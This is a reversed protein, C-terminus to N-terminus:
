RGEKSKLGLMEEDQKLCARYFERFEVYDKVPIRRATIQVDRRVHLLGPSQSIEYSYSGFKDNKVSFPKPIFEVTVADPVKITVDVTLRKPADIELDITRTQLSIADSQGLRDADFLPNFTYWSGMRKTFDRIAYTTESKLVGQSNVPDERTSLIDVERYEKSLIQKLMQILEEKPVRPILHFWENSSITDSKNTIVAAQIDELRIEINEKVWNKDPGQPPILIPEGKKDGLIIAHRFQDYRPLLGYPTSSSTPDLFSYRGDPNRLAVIAHDFSLPYPVDKDLLCATKVLAVASDIGISRLLAVTLVSKDKCDGYGNKMTEAASRPIFTGENLLIAVYRFAKVYDYIAKIKGERDFLNATLEKAKNLVEQGAVMKPEYLSTCLKSVDGWTASSFFLIRNDFEGAPISQAETLRPKIEAIRYIYYNAGGVKVAKTTTEPLPPNLREKRDITMGDEFRLITLKEKMPVVSDLDVTVMAYGKDVTPRYTRKVIYRIVSGEELGQITLTKVKLDSYVLGTFPEKIRTTTVDTDIQKGDKLYVVVTLYDLTEKENNFRSAEEGMRQKAEPTNIRVASDYYIIQSGDKDLSVFSHQYVFSLPYSVGSVYKEELSEKILQAKHTESVLTHLDGLVEESPWPVQPVQAAYSYTSLLLVILLSFTNPNLRVKM